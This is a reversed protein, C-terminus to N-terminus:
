VNGGEMELLTLFEEKPFRWKMHTSFEKGGLWEWFQNSIYVTGDFGEQLIIVGLFNNIDFCIDEYKEWKLSIPLPSAFYFPEGDNDSTHHWDYKDIATIYIYNEYFYSRYEFGGVMYFLEPRGYFGFKDYNTSHVPRWVGWKRIDHNFKDTWFNIDVGYNIPLHIDEGNGILYKLMFNFREKNSLKYAIFMIVCVVFKIIGRM